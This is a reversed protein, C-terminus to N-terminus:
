IRAGAVVFSVPALHSSVFLRAELGAFLPTREIAGVLAAGPWFAPRADVFGAGAMPRLLVIGLPLDWGIEAGCEVTRSLDRGVLAGRTVAALAGLHLHSRFTYGASLGVGYKAAAADDGALGSASAAGWTGLLGVSWPDGARARASVLLCVLAATVFPSTRV